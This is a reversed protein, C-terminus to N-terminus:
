PALEELWRLKVGPAGDVGLRELFRDELSRGRRIEELSAQEVQLGYVAIEHHLAADGVQEAGGMQVALERRLRLEALEEDRPM